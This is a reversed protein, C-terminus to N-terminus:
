WGGISAAWVRWYAWRQPVTNRVAAIQIAVGFLADLVGTVAGVMCHTTSLPLGARSGFIIVAAASIEVVFGRSNSLKAMQM